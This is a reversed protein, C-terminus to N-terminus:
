LAKVIAGVDSLIGIAGKILSEGSRFWEVNQPGHIQRIKEMTRRISTCLVMVYCRFRNLWYQSREHIRRRREGATLIYPIREMAVAAAAAATIPPKGFGFLDLRRAANTRLVDRRRTFDTDSLGLWAVNAALYNALYILADMRQEAMSCYREIIPRPVGPDVTRRVESYWQKVADRLDSLATCLAELPRGRGALWVVAVLALASILLWPNSPDFVDFMPFVMIGNISYIVYLEM